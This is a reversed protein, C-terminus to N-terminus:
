DHQLAWDMKPLAAEPCAPSLQRLSSVPCAMEEMTEAEAGAEWMTGAQLEQKPKGEHHVTLQLSFYVRKEGLHRKTSTNIVAVAVLFICTAEGPCQPLPSTIGLTVSSGRSCLRPGDTPMPDLAM